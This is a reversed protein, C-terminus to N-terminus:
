VYLDYFYSYETALSLFLPKAHNRAM